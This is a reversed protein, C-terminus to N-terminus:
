PHKSKEIDDLLRQFSPDNKLAEETAAEQQTQAREKGDAAKVVRPKPPASCSPLTLSLV